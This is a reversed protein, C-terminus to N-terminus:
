PPAHTLLMSGMALGETTPGVEDEALGILATRSTGDDSVELVPAARAVQRAPETGAGLVWVDVRGGSTVGWGDEIPVPVARSGPPLGVAPGRPDLHASTLVSGEPLAFALAAGDPVESLAGSPVAAPPREVARVAPDITGVPLDEAAVLVRVPPGGWRAEARAIRASVALVLVAVGLLGVVLRLRPPLRSWGESVADLPRPLALYPGRLAPRGSAGSPHLVDFM